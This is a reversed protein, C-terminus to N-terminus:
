GVMNYCICFAEVCLVDGMFFRKGMRRAHSEGSDGPVSSPSAQPTTPASESSPLPANDNTSTSVPSSEVDQSASSCGGPPVLFDSPEKVAESTTEDSSFPIDCFM